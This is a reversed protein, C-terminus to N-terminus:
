EEMMKGDHKQTARHLNKYIDDRRQVGRKKEGRREEGRRKEEGMSYMGYRVMSDRYPFGDWICAAERAMLPPGPVVAEAEM